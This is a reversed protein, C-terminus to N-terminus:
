YTFLFVKKRLEVEDSENTYTPTGKRPLDIDLLFCLCHYYCWKMKKIPSQGSFTKTITNHERHFQTRLNKIKKKLSAINTGYKKSLTKFVDLKKIIILIM